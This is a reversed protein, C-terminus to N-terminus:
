ERTVEKQHAILFNDILSYAVNKFYESGGKMRAVAIIGELGSILMAPEYNLLTMEPEYQQFVSTTWNVQLDFFQNLEDTIPQPLTNLEVMLTMCLCIRKNDPKLVEAYVNILGELCERLSSADQAIQKLIKEVDEKYKAVTEKVLNEKNRFHHYINSSSIELLQAIENMTFAHYGKGQILEKCCELIKDRTETESM